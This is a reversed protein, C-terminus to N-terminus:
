KRRLLIYKKKGKLFAYKKLKDKKNRNKGMYYNFFENDNHVFVKKQHEEEKNDDEILNKLYLLNNKNEAKKEEITENLVPYNLAILKKFIEEQGNDNISSDSSAEFLENKKIINNNKFKSNYKNFKKMDDQYFNISNTQNTEEKEKTIKRRNVKNHVTKNPTLIHIVKNPKIKYTDNINKSNILSYTLGQYFTKYNYKENYTISKILKSNIIKNKFIKFTKDKEEKQSLDDANKLLYNESINLPYLDNISNSSTLNTKLFGYDQASIKKKYKKNLKMILKDEILRGDRKYINERIRELDNKPSFRMKPLEFFNVTNNDINKLPSFSTKSIKHKKEYTSNYSHIRKIINNKKKNIINTKNNENIKPRDFYSQKNTKFELESIIHTMFREIKQYYQKSLEERKKIHIKRFKIMKENELKKIKEDNLKKEYIYENYM